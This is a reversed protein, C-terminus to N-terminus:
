TSSHPRAGNKKSRSWRLCRWSGCITRRAGPMCTVTRHTVVCRCVMLTAGSGSTTTGSTTQRGKVSGFLIHGPVAKPGGDPRTGSKRELDTLPDWNGLELSSIMPSALRPMPARAPSSRWCSLRSGGEDLTGFGCLLGEGEKGTRWQSRRNRATKRSGVAPRQEFKAVVIGWRLCEVAADLSPAACKEPV